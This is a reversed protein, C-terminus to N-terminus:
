IAMSGLNLIYDIADELHREYHFWQFPLNEAIPKLRGCGVVYIYKDGFTNIADVIGLDYIDRILIDTLNLLIIHCQYIQQKKWMAFESVSMEELACIPDVVIFDANYSLRNKTAERWTKCNGGMTYVKVKNMKRGKNTANADAEEFLNRADKRWDLKNGGIM